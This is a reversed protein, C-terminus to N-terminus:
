ELETVTLSRITATSGFASSVRIYDRIGSEPLQRLYPADESHWRMVGDIILAAFDRHLIWSIDHYEDPTIYGAADITQLTGALIDEMNLLMKNMEWNLLVHGSHFYLRLNTDDTKATLDIKLPLSFKRGTGAAARDFLSYFVLEGKQMYHESQRWRIASLPVVETDADTNDRIVHIARVTVTNNYDAGVGIQASLGYDYNNAYFLAFVMIEDLYIITKDKELVWKISIYDERPAPRDALVALDCRYVHDHFTLRVRGPQQWDFEARYGGFYLCISRDNTKALVRVMFPVTYERETVAYKNNSSISLVEGGDADPAVRLLDTRGIDQKGENSPTERMRALPIEHIREPVCRELIKEVEMTNNEIQTLFASIHESINSLASIENKLQIKHGAIINLIENQNNTAFIMKISKLSVGMKRFLLVQELTRLATEDYVRYNSRDRASKILGAQEYFKLTHVKINYKKSVESIPLLPKNM